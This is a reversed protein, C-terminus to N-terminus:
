NDANEPPNQTWLPKFRSFWLALAVAKRMFGAQLQETQRAAGLSTGTVSSIQLTGPIL